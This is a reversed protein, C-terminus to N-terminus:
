HNQLFEILDSTTVIGIPKQNEDLIFIRHLHNIAIMELADGVTTSNTGQLYSTKLQLKDITVALFEKVTLNLKSFLVGKIANASLQGTLAGENNVVGMGSVKAKLLQLFADLVQTNENVCIVNRSMIPILPKNVLEGLHSKNESLFEIVRSQSILGIVRGEHDVLPVRHIHVKNSFIDMLSSLPLDQYVPCWPNRLSIDCIAKVPLKEFAMRELEERPLNIENLITTAYALLDIVDVLGIFRKQQRDFIPASLVNKKTLTELTQQWNAHSDVIALLFKDKLLKKVSHKSIWERFASEKKNARLPDSFKPSHYSQDFKATLM